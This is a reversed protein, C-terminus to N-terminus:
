AVMGIKTLALEYHYPADRDPYVKEFRALGEQIEEDDVLQLTSVFRAQVADIWEGASRSILETTRSVAVQRGGTACHEALRKPDPFRATDIEIVSPFWRGLSSREITQPDITWVEIRGGPATVRMAEDLAAQWDGYHISLHFYALGVTRDQFPLAQSHAQVVRVGTHSRALTLMATAPDVVIPERDDGRWMAAHDGAGGGIDLLWGSCGVAAERARRQGARSIPRLRYGNALRNLDIDAM